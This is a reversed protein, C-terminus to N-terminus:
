VYDDDYNRREKRLERLPFNDEEDELFDDGNLRRLEKDVQREEWEKTFFGSFAYLSHVILILAWFIVPIIFWPEQPYIITWNAFFLALSGFCFFIFHMFFGRKRKVKKVAWRYQDENRM